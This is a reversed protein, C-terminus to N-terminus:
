MQVVALEKGDLDRVIATLNRQTAQLQIVTGINPGPEVTPGGGVIQTYRRGAEPPSVNWAHVHGNVVLDVKANELLDHWCERSHDSAAVGFLPIHLIGVKFPASRFSETKLATELWARQELRYRAFAGLGAYVPHEDAKDEGTGLVVFAIPGQRVLYYRRAEPTGIFRDLARANIGRVDHSGSVFCVPVTTAYAANAPRMVNAVIQDDDRVDDFVDGNWFSFDTPTQALLSTVRDLVPIKEHTDNFTSVSATTGRGDDLTRFSHIASAVTAGRSIKYANQFNIVAVLVRYFHRTSPELGTVRVRHVRESLPLLGHESADARLGLAETTGYEIWATSNTKVAVAVTM